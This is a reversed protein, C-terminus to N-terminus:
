KLLSYSQYIIFQLLNLTKMFYVKKVLEMELFAVSINKNSQLKNALAYGCAILITAGVIPVSGKFGISNDILHM